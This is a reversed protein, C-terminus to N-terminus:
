VGLIKGEEGSLGVPANEDLCALKLNREHREQHSDYKDDTDRCRGRKRKHDPTPTHPNDFADTNAKDSAIDPVRPTYERTLMKEKQPGDAIIMPLKLKRLQLSVSIHVEVPCEQQVMTALFFRNTTPGEDSRQWQALDDNPFLRQFRISVPSSLFEEVGYVVKCMTIHAWTKGTKAWKHSSIIRGMAAFGLDCLTERWGDPEVYGFMLYHYVGRQYYRWRKATDKSGVELYFDPMKKLSNVRAESWGLKVALQEYSLIKDSLPIYSGEEEHVLRPATLSRAISLRHTYIVEAQRSVEKLYDGKEQISNLQIIDLYERM